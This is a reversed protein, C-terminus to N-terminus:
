CEDRWATMLEGVQKQFRRMAEPHRFVFLSGGAQALAAATVAEWLVARKAQEGWEPRDGALAEKTKWAEYGVFCVVPPALMRDGGLAGLRMREMISYAYDLGYGLPGISPDMVVRELPLGTDTILINLQKALNIDLPSSAVVAHGYARCAEVVPRYNEATALGILCSRGELASAVAPLVEADRSEVGCGLVILPVDVAAAVAQATSVAASVPFNFGEPDTSVLRLAVMDAGRAAALRAWEAPDQVAPGFAEALLPPFDGDVRDWVELAVVPRHPIPGEFHLFPLAGDGGFSVQHSERGLTVEIVRGKWRERVVEIAMNGRTRGRAM